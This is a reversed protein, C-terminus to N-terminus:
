VEYVVDEKRLVLLVPFSSELVECTSDVTDLVFGNREDVAGETLVQVGSSAGEVKEVVEVIDFCPGSDAVLKLM